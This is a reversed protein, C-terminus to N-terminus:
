SERELIYKNMVEKAYLSENELKNKFENLLREDEDLIKEPKIENSETMKKAKKKKKSQNTKNLKKKKPSYKLKGKDDEMIYDVWDNLDRINNEKEVEKNPQSSESNDNDEKM